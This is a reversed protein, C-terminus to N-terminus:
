SKTIIIIPSKLVVSFNGFFLKMSIDRINRLIVFMFCDVFNKYFAPVDGHYRYIFTTPLMLKVILLIWKLVLAIAKNFMVAFTKKQIKSSFIIRTVDKTVDSLVKM